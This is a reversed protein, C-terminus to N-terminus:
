ITGLKSLINDLSNETPIYYFHGDVKEEDVFFVTELNLIDNDYQGAEIFTTTLIAALMDYSFAPVSPMITFGTFTAIANLYAGTIINGVESVASEGYESLIDHGQLLNELLKSMSDKHSMFIVSGSIDGIVRVNVSIMEEEAERMELLQNLSIIKVQPVSMDTKKGTFESLSTAAYGAGINFFERLSDM